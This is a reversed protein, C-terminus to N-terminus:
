TDMVGRQLTMVKLMTMQRPFVGPRSGVGLGLYRDSHVWEDIDPVELKDPLGEGRRRVSPVDRLESELRSISRRVNSM